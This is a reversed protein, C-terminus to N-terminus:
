TSLKSIIEYRFSSKNQKFMTYRVDAPGTNIYCCPLDFEFNPFFKRLTSLLKFHVCPVMLILPEDNLNQAFQEINM